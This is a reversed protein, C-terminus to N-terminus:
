VWEMLVAVIFGILGIVALTAVVSAIIGFLKLRDRPKEGTVTGTQGNVMIPYEVGKYRYSGIWVPLLIHKFTMDSWNVGGTNLQRKQQGPLVRFHLERRVKKVIQERALLTARALPRDYTLAPWGALFDPKFEVVDKLNFHGLRNLTKTKLSKLGAILVDDFMEYEVGTRSVWNPRSSTGTNIECAWHIELTGDFTWFPYYAPRLESKRAAKKLDDPTTWGQGLWDGIRKAAAPQDVQMVALAQPDVLAETEASEILQHSGCYPCAVAAQGPPWLSHAGCQECALQQQSVAWRHGSETPLVESIVREQDAASKEEVSQTNGCYRCTLKEANLDFEMHGGCQACLFVQKVDAALPEASKQPNQFSDPSFDSTEARQESKLMQLGRRIKPNRPDAALAHELCAIKERRDDSAEALWLWPKPDLSNMETAQKLLTWALHKNGRQVAHIGEMVLSQYSRSNNQM